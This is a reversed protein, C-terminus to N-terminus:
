PTKKRRGSSLSSISQGSKWQKINKVDIIIRQPAHYYMPLQQYLPRDGKISSIPLLSDDYVGLERMLRLADWLVVALGRKKRNVTEVFELADDSIETTTVLYGTQVDHHVQAGILQRVLAVGVTKSDAYKEVQVIAQKNGDKDLLIIDTGDDRTAQAFRTRYGQNKFVDEVLEEFRRWDLNYLDSFNHKLHTGIEETSLSVDNIDFERLIGRKIQLSYHIHAIFSYELAHEHHWGVGIVSEM